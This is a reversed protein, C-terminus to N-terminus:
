QKHGNWIILACLVSGSRTRFYCASSYLIFCVIWVWVMTGCYVRVCKCVRLFLRVCLRLRACLFLKRYINDPRNPETQSEREREKPWTFLNVFQPPQPFLIPTSNHTVRLSCQTWKGWVRHLTNVMGLSTQPSNVAGQLPKGAFLHNRTIGTWTGRIHSVFLSKHIGQTTRLHIIFLLFYVLKWTLYLAYLAM